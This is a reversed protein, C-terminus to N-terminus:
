NGTEAVEPIIKGLTEFGARSLRRLATVYDLPSRYVALWTTAEGPRRYYIAFRLM